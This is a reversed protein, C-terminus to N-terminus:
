HYNLNRTPNKLALPSTYIALFVILTMHSNPFHCIWLINNAMQKQDIQVEVNTHHRTSWIERKKKTYILISQM